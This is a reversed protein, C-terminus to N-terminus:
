ITMRTCPLAQRVADASSTIIGGAGAEFLGDTDTWWDLGRVTGLCSPHVNMRGKADSETAWWDRCATENTGSRIYGNTRHGAVGARTSNYTTSFMKLPQFIHEDVYEHLEKGSLVSVIYALTIYGQNNYQWQQRLEYSPKFHDFFHAVHAPSERDSRM